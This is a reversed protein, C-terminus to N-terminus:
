VVALKGIPEVAGERYAEWHSGLLVEGPDVSLRQLDVAGLVYGLVIGSEFAKKKGLTLGIMSFAKFFPFLPFQGRIVRNRSILFSGGSCRSAMEFTRSLYSAHSVVATFVSSMVFRDGKSRFGMITITSSLCPSM